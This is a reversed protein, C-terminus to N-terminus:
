CQEEGTRKKAAKLVLLAEAQREYAARWHKFASELVAACRESKAQWELAALEDETSESEVWAALAEEARKTAEAYSDERSELFKREEREEHNARLLAAEAARVAEPKSAERQKREEVEANAESATLREESVAFCDGCKCVYYRGRAEHQAISRTKAYSVTGCKACTLRRWERRETEMYQFSESPAFAEPRAGLEVAARKFGSSHKRDGYLEAAVLHALEHRITDRAEETSAEAVAFAQEALEIKNSAYHARGLTRSLRKNWQLFASRLRMSQPFRKRAAELEEAWLASVEARKAEDYNPM